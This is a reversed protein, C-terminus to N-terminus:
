WKARIVGPLRGELAMRRFVHRNICFDGVVSRASGTVICRRRHFHESSQRPLANLALQSQMRVRAPFLRCGTVFRLARREMEHRVVSVRRLKDSVIKLHMPRAM